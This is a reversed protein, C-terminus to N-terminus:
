RPLMSEVYRRTAERILVVRDVKREEALRELAAAVDTDERYGGIHVRRPPYTRPMLVSGRLQRM